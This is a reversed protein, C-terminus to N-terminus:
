VLLKLKMCRFNKGGHINRLTRTAPKPKLQQLDGLLSRFVHRSFLAKYEPHPDKDKISGQLRCAINLARGIYEPRNMMRLKILSGKEIGFTLGSTAIKTELLPLILSSYKKKFYKSLDTLLNLFVQGKIDEPFLLLWGDGTFKYIDFGLVKAKKKLFKKIAILLNRMVLLNGTLTLDEIIDSSSCIDFSVVIHREVSPNEYSQTM